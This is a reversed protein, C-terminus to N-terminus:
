VEGRRFTRKPKAFGTQETKATVRLGAQHPELDIRDVMEMLEIKPDDGVNEPHRGEEVWAVPPLGRKQLHEPVDRSLSMGLMWWEDVMHTIRKIYGTSRIDRLWDERYGYYKLAQLESTAPDTLRSFSAKSLVQNPARPGWFSPMSLYSSPSYDADSNCSAEDTQWPVGMWRTLSGAVAVDLAGRPGLCTEPTLKDGFDQRAVEDVGGCKLRFPKEWLSTRRMTWTMEIGPHFPGGLCEYLSARELHFVQQEPALDEFRPLAPVGEWDDVAEGAAWRQVHAYITTTVSLGAEAFDGPEGYADGYIQAMKLPKYNSMDAPDRFLSAVRERWPRNEESMDRLRKLRDPAAADLTSGTGHMVYLGHDVWQQQTMRDFVPWIDRTFSTSEPRDMWGAAIWSDVVVDEMTVVGFTGPAFNPPAVVVYAPLADLTEDGITVTAHVPGDGTDDHWGDNNAFTTPLTGAVAPASAGYGGLVILRGAEDTRLEGLYVDRGYFRGDEFTVTPANKGSIAAPAPVINLLSRDNEQANRKVVFPALGPAVDMAQQFQYWGAKLNAIRVRWKISVNGGATIEEISGDKLHAYIRFRVAQRKIRGETDRFGDPDDPARGRIESALIYDEYGPANGVRALGLPPYIAISEIDAVRTM